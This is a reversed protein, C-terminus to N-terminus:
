AVRIGSCGFWNSNRIDARIQGDSVVDVARRIGSVAAEHQGVIGGRKTKTLVWLGTLSLVAFLAVLPAQNVVLKSIGMLVLTALPLKASFKSYVDEFMPVVFIMLFTIVATLFIVSFIPYSMASVVKRQTDAVSELYDSLQELIVHLNGSVEGAHVLAVYLNSYVGPHKAM